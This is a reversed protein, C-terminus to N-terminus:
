KHILSIHSGLGVAPQTCLAPAVMGTKLKREVVYNDKRDPPHQEAM